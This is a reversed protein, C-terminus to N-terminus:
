GIIKKGKKLKAEYDILSSRQCAQRKSEGSEVAQSQTEERKTKERRFFGCLPRSLSFVVVPLALLIICVYAIFVSYDTPFLTHM